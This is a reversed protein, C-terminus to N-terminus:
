PCELKVGEEGYLFDILNLIDILDCSGSADVDAADPNGPAPGDEYLFAIIFLLDLLDVNDDDNVDGCIFPPETLIELEAVVTWPNDAPDPDNSGIIINASYLGQELEASTFKCTITDAEEPALEGSGRDLTLWQYPKFFQVALSDHVYETLFAVELGDTGDPSEIGVTASGIDFGSAINLYQFKITGDAELIVEATIVDGPGASYEPYDVFMIVCRGGTTDYYVQAGPNDSDEPNLDDWLWAVIANPATDNPISKKHRSKLNTSDFGILGNSSIYFESYIQGYFSFDFGLQYPGSYNDDTLSGTVDIGTASIDEWAFAPGGSEDSDIWYHGFLDPGGAGREVPFGVRPDDIGKLDEYDFFGDPYTRSAPEVLGAALLDAFGSRLNLMPVSTVSYRLMGPGDNSIVLEDFTSDGLLLTHQFLAPTVSIAPAHDVRIDDIYWNDLGAASGMSTFRIQFGGHGAEAPLGIWVWEFSSMTAVGGQHIRAVVWEGFQNKYEVTLNDGSEPADESGGSQYYYSLLADSVGSLNIPQSVVTDNGGDLNLAYPSSPPAIAADTVQAGIVFLWRASAITDHPFPEFWPFGGPLGASYTTVYASASIGPDGQSTALLIAEDSENMIADSPIAVKVTVRESDGAAILDTATIQVQGSEDFFSIDWTGGSSSLDYHDDQVGRNFLMITYAATDGAPGYQSQNGPAVVVAYDPPLGIYIDDVFWDDYPGTSADCRIRLRFGAHWAGSPLQIEVQEFDLMDEGAGPHSQLQVWSGLSDLYEAYLDDGSDPSEGGGTRQYSYRVLANVADRLDIKETIITDGQNPDGNLNCSYLPTPENLGLENIEAGTVEEWKHMDFTDFPFTESFPIEWPQGASITKLAATASYNGDAVSTAVIGISDFEDEWSFPIIVRVRFNFGEGGFLSTSVTVPITGTEDLLATEWSNDIVSLSYSDELVGDNTVTLSYWVTDDVPAVQYAYSPDLKVGYDIVRFSYVVTSDIFGGTNAAVMYYVVDTGASQAPITGVYEGEPGVAELTDLYWVSNIQYKLLLSDAILPASTYIMCYVDYDNLTDKTDELPPQHIIALDSTTTVSGVYTERNFATVTLLVDEGIPLFDSIPIVAHGNIDTYAAGYLVGDFYLACLAGEVDVVDVEYEEAVFFVADAHNVTMPEPTDTWIQVSPDGFIHWTNYMSVGDSGNLEIMKCSGNYCLGGVTTKAMSVLLDCAEDQADMPPSWSQLISSMYTAIAGTPIGNHTARMWAEAFCTYSDFQGNNCAVSFVFPLLNDNTLANVDANNFYSTSWSTPGGHGCYNVLSRGDNVAAAVQADTAGPDYIQDVLTYTFALLDDRINDMHQYDYEGGHGPGEASAIGTAQHFWDGGPPNVEYTITREVQTEVDAITQASLRGIIIDPYNDSGSVKAYSPDSAGGSAYPTAVQSADGVLLVWALNTSDADYFDQIYNAISTSNNGITSVDVIFTRIGKQRKWNVLPIMASHFLDYTIVLMDGSEMVEPYVKAFVDYNIFRRQYILSFDPIFNPEKKTREFVNIEGPGTNIIEVTVSSYVRLTRAAPNYQFPYLEVVTGRFDRLIFPDRLSVIKKPYFANDAYVPGFSYPIDAPNVTRLLNGKSSIVPTEIYDVYESSIIRAAMKANDPIIVSRSVHPLEPEGERLLFAEDGCRISYYLEGNVIVAEREFAGIDYRVVIRAEGSEEVTVAIDDSITGLEIREASVMAVTALVLIASMFLKRCM